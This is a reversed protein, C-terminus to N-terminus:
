PLEYWDESTWETIEKKSKDWEIYQAMKEMNCYRCFPIPKCLFSLIEEMDRAKYIDIFDKDTVELKQNFFTNFYHIYAIRFCPFIKGDVLQFCINAAYCL